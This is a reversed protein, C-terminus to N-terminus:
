RLIDFNPNDRDEWLYRAREQWKEIWNTNLSPNTKMQEQRETMLKGFVSLYSNAKNLNGLRIFLAVITYIVQTELEDAKCESIAFSKEFYELAKTLVETDDMVCDNKLIHAIKLAYSGMKFYGYPQTLGAETKARAIALQYSEIAIQPTRERKFYSPNHVAAPLLSKREDIKDKLEMIVGVPLTTKEEGTGTFSPYNFNKRDPSAFLCEPCVAVALLNYNATNFGKAGTFMPVLFATQTVQQSKARLEYSIIGAYNCVPCNVSTEFIPDQDGAAADPAQSKNASSAAAAAAVAAAAAANSENIANLRAARAALVPNVAPPAVAASGGKKREKVEKLHKAKITFGFRRVYEGVLNTDKLLVLLKKAVELEEPTPM